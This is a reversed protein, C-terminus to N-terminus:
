APSRPLRPAPARRLPPPAPHPRRGIRTARPRFRKDPREPCPTARHCVLAPGSALRADRGPHLRRVLRRHRLGVRRSGIRGRGLHVGHGHLCDHCSEGLRDIAPVRNVPEDGAPGPIRRGVPRDRRDARDSAHAGIAFMVFAAAISGSFAITAWRERGSDALRGALPAALIGALGLLGFLGIQWEAYGYPRGHLLFALMAWFGTFAAFGLAGYLARMRLVREDAILRGISASCVDIAARPPEPARHCARALPRHRPDGLRGRRLRLRLALRGSCAIAGSVTRALLIGSLLGSMVLGVARGRSSSDALSATVALMLQGATAAMGFVLAVAYFVALDPAAAASGPAAAAVLVVATLLRRRELRDGLPVILALGLAYGLQGTTLILGSQWSASGFDHSINPLVPQAWHVSASM